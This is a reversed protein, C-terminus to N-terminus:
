KKSAMYRSGRTLNQEKKSRSKHKHHPTRQSMDSGISSQQRQDSFDDSYHHHQQSPPQPTHGIKQAPDRPYQNQSSKQPGKEQHQVSKIKDLISKVMEASVEDKQVEKQQPQLYEQPGYSPYSEQSPQQHQQKPSSQRPTTKIEKGATIAFRNPHLFQLNNNAIDNFLLSTKRSSNLNEQVCYKLEYAQYAQNQEVYIYLTTMSQSGFISSQGSPLLAGKATHDTVFIKNNSDNVIEIPGAAINCSVISAIVIYFFRKM